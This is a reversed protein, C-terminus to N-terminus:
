QNSATPIVVRDIGPTENRADDTHGNSYHRRSRKVADVKRDNMNVVSFYIFLRASRNITGRRLHLITTWFRRPSEKVPKVPADIQTRDHRQATDRVDLLVHAERHSEGDGGDTEPDRQDDEEQSEGHEDAFRRVAAGECVQHFDQPRGATSSRCLRLQEPLFECQSIVSPHVSPHIPLNVSPYHPLISLNTSQYVSPYLYQSPHTPQHFSM